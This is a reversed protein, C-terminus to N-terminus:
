FFNTLFLCKINNLFAKFNAKELVIKLRGGEGRRTTRKGKSTQSTKIVVSM